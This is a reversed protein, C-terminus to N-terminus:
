QMGGFVLSLDSKLERIVHLIENLKDSTFDTNVYDFYQKVAERLIDAISTKELESQKCLLEYYEPEIGFTMMRKNKFAM